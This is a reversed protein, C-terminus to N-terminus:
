IADEFFEMIKKRQLVTTLTGAEHGLNYRTIEHPPCERALLEQSATPVVTDKLAITQHFPVKIEKCSVAPDNKLYGRLYTEYVDVNVMGLTKMHRERFEKIPVITSRAYIHPLDGGGVAMWAAKIRPIHSVLLVTTIGGQSAGLAFVPLNPPLRFKFDVLNIFSIVSVVPRYYDSDLKNMDPHPQNLETLFPYTVIVLYGRNSFYQANSGEVSDYGGITPSIVLIAKINAKPKYVIAEYEYNEVRTKIEYTDYDKKEPETPISFSTFLFCFLIISVAKM